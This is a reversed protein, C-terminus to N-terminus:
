ATRIAVVMRVPGFPAYFGYTELQRNMDARLRALTEARLQARARPDSTRRQDVWGDAYVQIAREAVKRSWRVGPSHEARAVIRVPLGKVLRDFRALPWEDLLTLAGGMRLVRVAESLALRIGQDGFGIDIDQLGLFCSVSNFVRDEFPMKRADSEVLSARVKARALLARIPKHPGAFDINLGVLRAGPFRWGLQALFTGVGCAFDLHLDDGPEPMRATAWRQVGGWGVDLGDIERDVPSRNKTLWSRLDDERTVIFPEVNM